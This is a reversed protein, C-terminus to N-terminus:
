RLPRVKEGRRRYTNRTTRPDAHGLLKAAAADSDSDSGTKARLDHFHLDELGTKRKMRQWISDFGSSTYAQGNMGAFLYLSGVRRRLGRARDVVERLTDTWEFIQRKGTKGQEVFIGDERLDSLRLKLMDGKRMGTLYVLDIMARMQDSAHARLTELEHDEIYRTRRNEANREVGICPNTDCWGWKIASRYVLSLLAIERNAQIKASSMDLYQAVHTPRVDCLACDAFIPRIAAAYRIYERQTAPAKKPIVEILVRDLAHGVTTGTTATGEHKAWASIAEPYNDALRIWKLKGLVYPTYYFVNGKKQMRPPLKLNKTRRRGMAM